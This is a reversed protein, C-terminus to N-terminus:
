EYVKKHHEGMPFILFKDPLFNYFLHTEDTNLISHSQLNEVVTALINLFSIAKQLIRLPFLFLSYHKCIQSLIWTLYFYSNFHLSFFVERLLLISWIFLLSRKRDSSVAEPLRGLSLRSNNFDSDTKFGSKHHTM